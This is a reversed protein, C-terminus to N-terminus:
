ISLVYFGEQEVFGLGDLANKAGFVQEVKTQYVQSTLQIKRFKPEAPNKIINELIYNQNGLIRKILSLSNVAVDPVM